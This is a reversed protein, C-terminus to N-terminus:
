SLYIDAYKAEKEKMREQRESIPDHTLRVGHECSLVHELVGEPNDIQRGRAHEKAIFAVADDIKRKAGDLGAARSLYSGAYSCTLEIGKAAAYEVLQQQQKTALNDARYDVVGPSTKRRDL